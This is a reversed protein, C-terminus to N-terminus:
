LESQSVARLVVGFPIKTGGQIGPFTKVLDQHRSVDEAADRYDSMEAAAFGNEDQVDTAATREGGRFVLRVEGSATGACQSTRRWTGRFTICRMLCWWAPRWRGGQLRGSQGGDKNGRFVKLLADAM